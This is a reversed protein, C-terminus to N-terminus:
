MFVGPYFGWANIIVQHASLSALPASEAQRTIIDTEIGVSVSPCDGCDGHDVSWHSIFL